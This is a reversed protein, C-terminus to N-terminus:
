SSASKSWTSRLCWRGSDVMKSEFIWEFTARWNAQFEVCCKKKKTDPKCLPLSNNLPWQIMGDSFILTKPALRSEKVKKLNETV